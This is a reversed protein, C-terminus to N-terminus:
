KRQWGWVSLGMWVASARYNSNKDLIGILDNAGISIPGLRVSAGVAVRGNGDIVSVPLAFETDEDEFRPTIVTQNPTPYDPGDTLNRQLLGNVFFGRGLRLDAEVNLLRPLEQRRAVTENTTPATILSPLQTILNNGIRDLDAQTLTKQISKGTTRTGVPLNVSGTNLVSASLRLLYAPRPDAFPTEANYQRGTIRKGIEYTAGFDIAWGAGTNGANPQPATTTLDLAVNNLTITNEGTANKPLIAYQGGLQLSRYSGGFLRRGTAGVSLRHWKGEFVRLGYTLGVEAHQLQQITGTFNGNAPEIKKSFLQYGYANTLALPFGNGWAYSRLRTHVAFSQRRDPSFLVSPGIVETYIAHRPAETLSGVSQLDRALDTQYPLLGLHLFDQTFPRRFYNASVSSNGAVVVQYRYRSGAVASPNQLMRYIGGYNSSMLGPLHQALTAIPLLLFFLLKKM